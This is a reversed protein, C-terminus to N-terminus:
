YKSGHPNTPVATGYPTRQTRSGPNTKGKGWNKGGNSTVVSGSPKFGKKGKSGPM